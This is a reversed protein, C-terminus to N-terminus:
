FRDANMVILVGVAAVVALALMAWFRWQGGGSPDNRVYRGPAHKPM